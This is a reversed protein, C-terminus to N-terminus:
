NLKKQLNTSLNLQFSVNKKRRKQYTAVYRKAKITKTKKKNNNREIYMRIIHRTTMKGVYRRQIYNHHYTTSYDVGLLTLKVMYFSSCLCVRVLSYVYIQRWENPMRASDPDVIMMMMKLKQGEKERRRWHFSSAIQRCIM